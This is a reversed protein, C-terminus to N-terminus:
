FMIFIETGKELESEAWIKGGLKEVIDKSIVLGLGTGSNENKVSIETDTFLNIVDKKCMGIGFDKVSLIIKEADKKASIIIKNDAKSFKIANSILNNLVIGLLKGDTNIEFNNNINNEILINKENASEQLIMIIKISLIFLYFNNKEVIIKNSQGVAWNLMNELQLKLALASNLMRNFYKEVETKKIKSYKTKLSNTIAYFASLPAKLDHSIISMIRIQTKNLQELELNKAQLIKNVKLRHVFFSIILITIIALSIIIILFLKKLDADKIQQIKLEQIKVNQKETEYKTQLEQITKTKEINFLSDKTQIYLGYCEFGNKYDNHEEYIELLTLYGQNVLPLINMEVANEIGEEISIVAQEYNGTQNYVGGRNILTFAVGIKDNLQKKLEISKNIYEIVKDIEKKQYSIGALNNYIDSMGSLNNKEEYIEFAKNYYEIAKEFEATEDYIVGINTYCDAEYLSLNLAIYIELAKNQFELAKQYNKLRYHSIGIYKSTKAIYIPFNLSDALNLAKFGYNIADEYNGTVKYIKSLILLSEIYFKKDANKKSLDIANMSYEQALEMSEYSCELALKNLVIIQMTDPIETELLNKLSDVKSTQSYSVNIILLFCLLINLKILTTM